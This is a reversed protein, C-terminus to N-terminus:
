VNRKKLMEVYPNTAASRFYHDSFVTVPPTNQKLDLLFNRTKTVQYMQFRNYPSTSHNFFSKKSLQGIGLHVM